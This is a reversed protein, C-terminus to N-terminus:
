LASSVFEYSPSINGLEIEQDEVQTDETTPIPGMLGEPTATNVEPAATSIERSGTNVQPSATNVQHDDIGNDIKIKNLPYAPSLVEKYVYCATSVAEAWFTTPLKSDALMTRAAEILTRNKREAVGNQQPTRAVSYERKIGKERCFIVLGGLALVISEESTAKAVLCTLGDKPVINKMDFSYMNNQRPIKLLIQSEDPLKFNPSLVLCESDTFLVYNKKDCMQSVSFLNFKLEKVLYLCRAFDLKDTKITGKGTIRGGNAGGGFTVYGGDFEKFDSLLRTLPDLVKLQFGLCALLKDLEVKLTLQDISHEQIGLTVWQVMQDVLRKHHEGM